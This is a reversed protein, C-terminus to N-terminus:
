DGKLLKESIYMDEQYNLEDYYSSVSQYMDRLKDIENTEINNDVDKLYLLIENKLGDDIKNKEIYTNLSKSIMKVKNRTIIIDEFRKDSLDFENSAKIIQNIKDQSVKRLSDIKIQQNIKTERDVATVVLMGNVDISFVVDIKPEGAPLLPINTLTFKGLYINERCVKREGQYVNIEVMKQNDSITTFLKKSEIPIPSNRKIIPVFLGGDVEIGLSLPTVDVLVIDDIKKLIIAGQIAAGIAVCEDPNINKEIKNRFKNELKRRVLPIRTSGGVLLVKEIENEDISADSLAKDTLEITEEISKDILTEFFDRSIEYNLHIPGKDNASIFPINIESITNESLSKKCKEVEEYLKQLAFKDDELNIKTDQKFKKVIEEVLKKDFDIGGLKNNGATSVVNFVGDGIDLISVDFTGGGLDYVLVTGEYNSALGYSIASSTPENIIRKVDFGAIKGANITAKRQNDNFYAPVTIIAENINQCLKNECDKKIKKLIFASIEEPSYKRGDIDYEYDTGMYRKVSQLVKDPHLVRQNKAKNGVIIEDLSKIFVVSPTLREGESNELIKTENYEYVSCVSNTTGLDIGLIYSM